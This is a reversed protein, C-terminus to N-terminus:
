AGYPGKPNLRPDFEVLFDKEVALLLKWVGAGLSMEAKGDVSPVGERFGKEVELLLRPLRFKCSGIALLTLVDTAPREIM